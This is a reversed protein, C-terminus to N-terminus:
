VQLHVKRDAAGAADAGLDRVVGVPVSRILRRSVRSLPQAATLGVVAIFVNLGVSNMFWLAPAPIRGFTPHVGRAWGVIIGAILAGGSTSLTIPVGAAPIVIAGILGGLVIGVGVWVMDTMNTPRDAYGLNKVAANINSRPGAIRLIDGRNIKTQALIPINVSTAGRTIKNLYVGRAFDTKMLELLTKGDYAKNTVVMSPKRRYM